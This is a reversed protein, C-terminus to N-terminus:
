IRDDKNRLYNVEYQLNKVREALFQIIGLLKERGMDGSIIMELKEESTANDFKEQNM